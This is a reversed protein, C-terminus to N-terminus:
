KGDSEERGDIYGNDYGESYSHCNAELLEKDIYEELDLGKQSHPPDVDYQNRLWLLYSAPVNALKTGAYKGFSIISQDNM